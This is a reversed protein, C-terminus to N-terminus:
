CKRRLCHLRQFLSSIEEEEGTSESGHEWGLYFSIGRRREGTSRGSSANNASGRRREGFVDCAPYRGRQFPRAMTVAMFPQCPLNYFFWFFFPQNHVAAAAPVFTKTFKKLDAEIM